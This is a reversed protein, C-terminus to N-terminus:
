RVVEVRCVKGCGRALERAHDRSNCRMILEGTDPDVILWCIVDGTKM